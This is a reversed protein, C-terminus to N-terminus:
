FFASHVAAAARETEKNKLLIKLFFEESVIAHFKTSLNELIEFFKKSPSSGIGVGTGVLALISLNNERRFNSFNKMINCVAEVDSKSIGLLVREGAFQWIKCNLKERSLTHTLKIADDNKIDARIVALDDDVVVAAVCGKSMSEDTVITGIEGTFSSGLSLQVSRFLM